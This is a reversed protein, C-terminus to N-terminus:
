FIGLVNHLESADQAAILLQNGTCCRHWLDIAVSYRLHQWHREGCILMRVEHSNANRFTRSVPITAVGFVIVPM